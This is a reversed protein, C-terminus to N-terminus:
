QSRNLGKDTHGELWGMMKDLEYKESFGFVLRDYDEGRLEITLYHEDEKKVLWFEWRKEYYYTGFQILGPFYTGPIKIRKWKFEPREERVESVNPLAFSVDNRKLCFLKEWWNLKIIIKHGEKYTQM